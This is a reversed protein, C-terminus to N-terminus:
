LVNLQNAFLSKTSLGFLIKTARCEDVKKIGYKFAKKFSEMVTKIQHKGPRKKAADDITSACNCLGELEPGGQNMETKTTFFNVMSQPSKKPITRTTRAIEKSTMTKSIKISEDRM